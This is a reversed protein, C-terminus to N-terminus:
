LQTPLYCTNIVAHRFFSKCHMLIELKALNTLHKANTQMAPNEAFPTLFGYLEKTTLANHIWPDGYSYKEPSHQHIKITVLRDNRNLNRWRQSPPYAVVVGSTPLLWWFRVQLHCGYFNQLCLTGHSSAFLPKCRNGSRLIWFNYWLWWAFSLFCFTTDTGKM